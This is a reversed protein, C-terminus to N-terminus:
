DESDAKIKSQRIEEKKEWWAEYKAKADEFNFPYFTKSKTKREVFDKASIEIGLCIDVEVGDVEATSAKVAIINKESNKEKSGVRVIAVNDEGYITGLAEMIKEVAAAKVETKIKNPTTKQDVIYDAM